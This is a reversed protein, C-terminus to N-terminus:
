SSPSYRSLFVPLLAARGGPRIRAALSSKGEEAFIDSSSASSLAGYDLSTSFKASLAVALRRKERVNFPQISKVKL